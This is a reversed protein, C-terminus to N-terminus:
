RSTQVKTFTVNMPSTMRTLGTSKMSKWSNQAQMSTRNKVISCNVQFSPGPWCTAEEILRRLSVMRREGSWISQSIAWASVIWWTWTHSHFWSLIITTRFWASMTQLSRTMLCTASAVLLAWWNTDTCADRFYSSLTWYMSAVRASGKIRLMLEWKRTLRVPPPLNSTQLRNTLQM